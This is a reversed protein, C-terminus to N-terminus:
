IHWYRTAHRVILLSVIGSIISPIGVALNIIFTKNFAYEVIGCYHGADLFGCQYPGFGSEYVGYLAVFVLQFGVTLALWLVLKLFTHM